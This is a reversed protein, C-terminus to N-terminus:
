HGAHAAGLKDEYLFWVAITKADRIDGREILGRIEQRTLVLNEVHEDTDLDHPARAEGCDAFYVDVVEDTYGPSSYLRGLPTLARATCGTEERLERHAAEEPREGPDVLGACVEIVAEEMAKRYQRVLVFRGDPLRPLVGVAAAHRIIERQSRRGDTLEVEHLDLALIRGDYLTKKSLTKEHM